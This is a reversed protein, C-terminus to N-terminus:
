DDAKEQEILAQTESRIASLLADVVELRQTVLADRAAFDAETSFDTTPAKLTRVLLDAEICVEWFRETATALALVIAASAAVANRPPNAKIHGAADLVDVQAAAAALLTGANRM